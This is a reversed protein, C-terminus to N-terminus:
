ICKKKKGKSARANIVHENESRPAIEIRLNPGKVLTAKTKQM